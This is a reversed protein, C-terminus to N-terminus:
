GLPIASVMSKGQMSVAERDQEEAGQVPSVGPLLSKKTSPLSWGDRQHPFDGWEERGM